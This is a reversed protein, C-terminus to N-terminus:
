FTHHQQGNPLPHLGYGRLSKTVLMGMINIGQLGSHETATNATDNLRHPTDLNVYCRRRSALYNYSNGQAVEADINAVFWPREEWSRPVLQEEVGPGLISKSKFKVNEYGFSNLLTM